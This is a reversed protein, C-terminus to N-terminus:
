KQNEAKQQQKQYAKQRRLAQRRERREKRKPATRVLCLIIAAIGGLILVWLLIVPLESVFNIGFRALGEKVDQWNEKFRRGIEESATEPEVATERMVEEISLNVTSFAIQDDYTRLTSEYSEIEYLVDSLRSQITIIDEVSEAKELLEMLTQQETRLAKVHSELDVYTLTVDQTYLNKYTLNGIQSIQDCFEDLRDAPIRATIDASRMRNRYYTNNNVRSSQVYGGMRAIAQNLSEIFADFELTQVSLDGNKIIKRGAVAGTLNSGANSVSGAAKMETNSAYGYEYEPEEMVAADYAAEPAAAYSRSYDASKACGVLSLIMMGALLLAVWANKRKM